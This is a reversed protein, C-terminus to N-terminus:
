VDGLYRELERARKEVFVAQGGASGFVHTLAHHAPLTPLPIVPPPFRTLLHAHLWAFDRFRRNVTLTPIRTSASNISSPSSSEANFWSTVEFSVYEELPHGDLSIKRRKSPTDVTVIFPPMTEEWVCGPKIVYREAVRLLGSGATGFSGESRADDDVVGDEGVRGATTDIALKGGRVIFDGVGRAPSQALWGAGRWLLGELSERLRAAVRTTTTVLSFGGGNVSTPSSVAAGAISPPGVGGGVFSSISLRQTSRLSLRDEPGRANAATHLRSELSEYVLTNNLDHPSRPVFPASSKQLVPIFGAAPIVEPHPSHQRYHHEPEESTEASETPNDTIFQLYSVPAFGVKGDPREVQCWGQEIEVEDIFDRTEDDADAPRTGYVTVATGAILSVTEPSGDDQFDYLCVARYVPIIQVVDEEEGEEEVISPGEMSGNDLVTPAAVNGDNDFDYAAAIDERSSQSADDELSVGTGEDDAVGRTTLDMESGDHNGLLLMVAPEADGEPTDGLSQKVPSAQREAAPAGPTAPVDFLGEMEALGADTPLPFVSFVSLRKLSRRSSARSLVSQPRSAASQPRAYAAIVSSSTVSSLSSRSSRMRLRRGPGLSGQGEAYEKELALAAAKPTPFINTPRRDNQSQSQSHEFRELMSKRLQPTSPPSCVVISARVGQRPTTPTRARNALRMMGQETPSTALKDSMPPQGNAPPILQTTELTLPSSVFPASGVNNIAIREFKLHMNQPVRGPGHGAPEALIVPASMPAAYANPTLDELELPQLPLRSVFSPAAFSSLVAADPSLSRAPPRTFPSEERRGVNLPINLSSSSSSSPASPTPIPPQQHLRSRTKHRLHPPKPPVPPPRALAKPKM